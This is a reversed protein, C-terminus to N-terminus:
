LDVQRLIEGQETTDYFRERIADSIKRGLEVINETM